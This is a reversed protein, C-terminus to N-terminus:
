EDSGGEDDGFLTEFARKKLSNRPKEEPKKLPIEHTEESFVKEPKEVKETKKRFHKSIVHSKEAWEPNAMIRKVEDIQSDIRAISRIARDRETERNLKKQHLADLRKQLDM